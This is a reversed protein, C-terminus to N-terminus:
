GEVRGAASVESLVTSVVVEVTASIVTFEASVLSIVVASGGWVCSAATESVVVFFVDAAILVVAAYVCFVAVIVSVAVTM